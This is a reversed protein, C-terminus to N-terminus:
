WAAAVVISVMAVWGMERSLRVSGTGSGLGQAPTAGPKLPGLGDGNNAGASVQIVTSDGPAFM